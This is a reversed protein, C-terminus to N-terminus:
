FINMWGISEAYDLGVDLSIIYKLIHGRCSLAEFYKICKENKPELETDSKLLEIFLRINDLSSEGGLLHNLIDVLFM